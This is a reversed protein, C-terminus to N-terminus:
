AMRNERLVSSFNLDTPELDLIPWPCFVLVLTSRRLIRMSLSPDMYQSEVSAMESLLIAERACSNLIVHHFDSGKDHPPKGSKGVGKERTCLAHFNEATRPVVDAFLEM